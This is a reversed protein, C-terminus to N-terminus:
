QPWREHTSLRSYRDEARELLREFKHPINIEATIMVKNDQSLWLKDDNWDKKNVLDDFVPRGEQTNYFPHELTVRNSCLFLGRDRFFIADGGGDYESDGVIPRECVWAKTKLFNRRIMAKSSAIFVLLFLWLLSVMHRRLQHYRGTKPKLEVLTLYDETAKLSKAYRLARWITVASQDELAHDILQWEIESAPNVDVGLDYAVQSSIKHEVPEPPIGNVVAIYTKKVKRDRFQISLNVMAPKTKAVILLGSTPKDLRHVPQPRRLTSYTGAKPPTLAFPLAARITM